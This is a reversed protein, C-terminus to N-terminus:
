LLNRRKFDLYARVLAPGIRDHRAEIVHIGLDDLAHAVRVKEGATLAMGEGQMGDRLTADYMEVPGGASPRDSSSPTHDTTTM